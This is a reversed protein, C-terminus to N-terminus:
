KSCQIKRAEIYKRTGFRSSRRTGFSLTYFQCTVATSNPCRLCPSHLRTNQSIQVDLIAMTSAEFRAHMDHWGATYCSSSDYRRYALSSHHFPRSSLSPHSTLCRSCLFPPTLVFFDIILHVCALNLDLMRTQCANDCTTLTFKQFESCDQLASLYLM